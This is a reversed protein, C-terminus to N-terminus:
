AAAPIEAPGKLEVTNGEPDQIYLSPGEGEAGYRTAVEGVQIGNAGLFDRIADADFPDVRLCFHDMNRGEGGPGAGGMRGLKGHIDVLDILSSGARLQTLGVSDQRRDVECGLLRTYFGLMRGLDHVRLVVHDIARIRIPTPQLASPAAKAATVNRASGAFMRQLALALGAKDDPGILAFDHIDM